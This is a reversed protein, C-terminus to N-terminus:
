RHGAHEGDGDEGGEDEEDDYSEADLEDMDIEMKELATGIIFDIGEEKLKGPDFHRVSRSVIDDLDGIILPKGDRGFMDPPIQEKEPLPGVIHQWTSFEWPIRFGNQQAYRMGGWVLQQALLLSCPVHKLGEDGQDLIRARFKEETANMDGFCDKLGLGLIDVLYAAFALRGNPLRRAVIVSAMGAEKYDENVWCGYLPAQAGSALIHEWFGGHAPRQQASKRRLREKAARKEQRKQRDLMKARDKKPM